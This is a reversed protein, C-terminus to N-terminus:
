FDKILFKGYIGGNKVYLIALYNYKTVENKYKTVKKTM